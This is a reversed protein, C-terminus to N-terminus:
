LILYFNYNINFCMVYAAQSYIDKSLKRIRQLDDLTVVRLEQLNQIHKWGSNPDSEETGFLVVGMWDQMSWALKQRLIQKYLQM